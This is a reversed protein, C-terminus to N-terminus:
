AVEEKSTTAAVRHIPDDAGTSAAGRRDAFGTCLGPDASGDETGVTMGPRRGRTRGALARPNLRLEELM